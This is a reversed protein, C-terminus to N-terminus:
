RMSWSALLGPAIAQVPANGEADLVFIQSIPAEEDGPVAGEALAGAFVLRSSDPSWVQHSYAYQDFYALLTLQDPSPHFDVLETDQGTRVEVVRWQLATEEINTTVYAVRSGDPSWFFALIPRQVLPLIEGTTVDIVQIDQLFPDNGDSSQGIALRNGQPAWLFSAMGQLRALARRRSGDFRAVYLTEGGEDAALFAIADSTPSWAPARYGSSQAELNLPRDPAEIDVRLLEGQRHVLLSQSDNSWALYLPAGNALIQAKEQGSASVLYLSLTRESMALFAVHEGDPSWLSYHPIRPGVAPGSDPANEFILNLGGGAADVSYIAKGPGFPDLSFSSFAVRRGSPSWTPWTYVRREDTLKLPDSGDPSITYIEFDNGVYLIRNSVTDQAG